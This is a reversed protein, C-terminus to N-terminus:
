WGDPGASGAPYEELPIKNNSIADFAPALIEWARAPSEAHLKTAGTQRIVGRIVRGYASLKSPALRTHLTVRQLSEVHAPDTVNIGIYLQDEEFALRLTTGDADGVPRYFITIEKRPNGIAKGSRLTVPVGRWADTDVDLTVQALTETHNDPDVGDEATYDPLHHGDITGATYRARRVSKSVEGALSTAALINRAGQAGDATDALSRAMVQMLHSQLMDKAAGNADYFKARGELGLTEDFVFLVSEVASSDWTTQLPRNTQLLGNLNITGSMGLFHDSRYIHDEDTFRHLAQTLARASDADTGFPKELVYEIDKPLKLEALADVALKTIKPSLAFYVVTRGERDALLNQLSESSTADTKVWSTKATLRAVTEAPVATPVEVARLATAVDGAYDAPEELGAGVLTVDVEPDLGMFQGLGPLLLRKSLDGAGGLVILTLSTM